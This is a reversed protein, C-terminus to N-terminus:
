IVILSWSRGLRECRRLSAAFVWEKMFGYCGGVGEDNHCHPKPGSKSAWIAIACSSFGTTQPVESIACYGKKRHGYSNLTTLDHIQKFSILLFYIDPRSSTVFILSGLWWVKLICTQRGRTLGDRDPIPAQQKCPRMNYNTLLQEAYCEQSIFIGEDLLLRHSTFHAEPTEHPWM